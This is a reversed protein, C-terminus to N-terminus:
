SEKFFHHNSHSQSSLFFWFLRELQDSALVGCQIVFHASRLVAATWELGPLRVEFEGVKAAAVLCRRTVRSRKLASELHGHFKVVLRQISRERRSITAAIAALSAPSQMLQHVASDDLFNSPSAATDAKPMDSLLHSVVAECDRRLGKPLDNECMRRAQLLAVQMGNVNGLAASFICV